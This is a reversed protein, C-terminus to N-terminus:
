HIVKVGIVFHSIERRFIHKVSLNMKKKMQLTPTMVNKQKCVHAFRNRVVDVLLGIGMLILVATIM